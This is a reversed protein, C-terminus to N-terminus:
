WRRRRHDRRIFIGSSQGDDNFLLKPRERRTFNVVSGNTLAASFNYVGHRAGTFTWQSLVGRTASYAFGLYPYSM